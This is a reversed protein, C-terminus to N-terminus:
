VLVLVQILYCVLIACDSNIAENEYIGFLGMLISLIFLLCVSPCESITATISPFLSPFFSVRWFHQNMKLVHKM